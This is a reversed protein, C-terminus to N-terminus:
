KKKSGWVDMKRRRRMLRSASPSGINGSGFRDKIVVYVRGTKTEDMYEQGVVGKIMGDILTTSTTNTALRVRLACRAIQVGSM